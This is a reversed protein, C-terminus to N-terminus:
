ESFEPRAAIWYLEAGILAAIAVAAAAFGFNMDASDAISAAWVAAFHAIQIGVIPMRVWAPLQAIALSLGIFFAVVMAYSSQHVLTSGPLFMALIWLALTAMGMALLRASWKTENRSEDSRRRLAAFALAFWGLNLIGLTKVLNFFQDHRSPWAFPQLPRTEGILVAANEAKNAVFADFTLRAYSDALARPFSRDDIEPVGALHWKLLHNGPPDYFKQYASWPMLWAAFVAVFIGTSRLGGIFRRSVALWAIVPYFFSVGSHALLALAALSAALVLAGTGGSRQRRSVGTSADPLYDSQTAVIVAMGLFVLAASLLKPWVFVSNILFFGSFICSALAIAATRASIGAARFFAWLAPIWLCQALAGLLQYQTHADWGFLALWARHVLVLGAQLPPRDSSQWSNMDRSHVDGLIPRPDSGDALKDAFIRPIINDPPLEHSLFRHNPAAHGPAGLLLIAIYFACTLLMLSLPILYDHHLLEARLKRNWLLNVCSALAFAAILGSYAFGAHRNLFFVWFATYGIGANMAIAAALTIARPTPSANRSRAFIAVHLGPLLLVVATIVFMAASLM